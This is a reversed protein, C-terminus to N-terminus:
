VTPPELGEPRVASIQSTALQQHTDSRTNASSSGDARSAGALDIRSSCLVGSFGAQASSAATSGAGTGVILMASGRQGSWM